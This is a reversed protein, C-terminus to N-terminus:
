TAGDSRFFQTLVRSQANLFHFALQGVGPHLHSEPEEMAIISTGLLKEKEKLLSLAALSKVGDGKLALSTETGDDV